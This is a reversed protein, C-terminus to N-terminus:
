CQYYASESYEIGYKYAAKADGDSSSYPSAWKVSGSYSKYKEPGTAYEDYNKMELYVLQGVVLKENTLLSLGGQCYNKMEAYYYQDQYDMRYLYMPINYEYRKYRRKGESPEM